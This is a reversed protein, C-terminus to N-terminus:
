RSADLLTPQFSIVSKEVTPHVPPCYRGYDHAWLYIKAIIGIASLGLSSPTRGTPGAVSAPIIILNGTGLPQGSMTDDGDTPWDSNKGAMRYQWTDGGSGSIQIYNSKAKYWGRQDSATDAWLRNPDVVWIRENGPSGTVKYAILTHGGSLPSWTKTISVLCPGEKDITQKALAVGYHAKQARPQVGLDPLSQQIYENICAVSLQHGHMINIARTLAANAPSGDSNVASGQRVPPGCFGLYGGFKNMMLSLISLGFCNGAGNGTGGPDPLKEKFVNDYFALDFGSSMWATNSDSPVGFFSHCYIDWSFKKTSFNQFGWGYLAPEPDDAAKAQQFALSFALVLFAGQVIRRKM